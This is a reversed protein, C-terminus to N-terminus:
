LCAAPKRGHYYDYLASAIEIERKEEKEGFKVYVETIDPSSHRMYNQTIYINDGTVALVNQATTHRLSHATYKESNYGANKMASKLMTSITTPAIRKGGSRNGTSVFLPANRNTRDSRTNLYEIIASTVEPALPKRTDAETHGKGWINIYGQGRVIEFDRIDARSLEVVRLGNNVALLYMALLRKGQETTREMKGAKDKESNKAAELSRGATERITEEITFVEEPKFREKRPAGKKFTKVKPPKINVTIDRPFIGELTGWSYFAKVTRLYQAVTGPKCKIMMDDRFRIIDERRPEAIQNDQLWKAFQRLNRMYTGSTTKAGDIYSIFSVFLPESIIALSGAESRTIMTKNM